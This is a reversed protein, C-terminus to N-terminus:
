TRHLWIRITPFNKGASISRNLKQVIFLSSRLNEQFWGFDSHAQFCFIMFVSMDQHARAFVFGLMLHLQGITNPSSSQQWSCVLWEWCQTSRRPNNVSATSTEQQVLHMWSKQHLWVISRSGGLVTDDLWNIISVNRWRSRSIANWCPRYIPSSNLPLCTKIYSVILKSM